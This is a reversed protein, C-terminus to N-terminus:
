LRARRKPSGLVCLEYVQWLAPDAAAAGLRSCMGARLMAAKRPTAVDPWSLRRAQLPRGRIRQVQPM